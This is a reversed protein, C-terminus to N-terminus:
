SALDREHQDRVEQWHERAQEKFQPYGVSEVFFAYAEQGLYARATLVVADASFQRYSKYTVPRGRYGTEHSNELGFKQVHKLLNELTPRLHEPLDAIATTTHVRGEIM